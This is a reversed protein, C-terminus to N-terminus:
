DMTSLYPPDPYVPLLEEVFSLLKWHNFKKLCRELIGVYFVTWSLTCALVSGETLRHLIRRPQGNKGSDHSAVVSRKGALNGLFLFGLLHPM